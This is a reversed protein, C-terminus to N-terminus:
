EWTFLARVLERKVLRPYIAHAESFPVKEAPILSPDVSGSSMASLSDVLDAVDNDRPVIIDPEPFFLDFYAFTVPDEPSGQLVLRPTGALDSNWPRKKLLAAAPGLMDARGTADFAVDVGEPALGAMAQAVDIRSADITHVAGAKIALDLRERVMDVAIVTAGAAV